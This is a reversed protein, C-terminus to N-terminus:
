INKLVRIAETLEDENWSETTVDQAHNQVLEKAHPPVAVIVDEIAIIYYDDDIQQLAEVVEDINPWESPDHPRPPPSLFLRADDIFIYQDSSSGELAKLEDLL